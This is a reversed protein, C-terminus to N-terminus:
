GARKTGIGSFSPFRTDPDVSVGGEGRLLALLNRGLFEGRWGRLLRHREPSADAAGLVLASIEARNGVLAPDIKNALCVGKVFALALDVRAEYGEDPEADAARANALRPLDGNLGRQIAEWLRARNRKLGRESLGKMPKLASASEPVKKVISIIAEDSLVFNRPLNAQRAQEERWAGLARLISRQRGDLSGSGRVRPMVTGPDVEEYLARDEYMAMEEDMWLRRGLDDARELLIERLQTSHRVDDEAYKAQSESLPRALWNSRTETKPLRIKLLTKLLESLSITSVLGVFGSARQTDFVNRPFAGCARHLISLDQQADHLIKVTGPDALLEALPSWDRVQPADILECHEDPYGIQVIGLTPYFTREWVFETDIGVAGAERAAAVAAELANKSSIM